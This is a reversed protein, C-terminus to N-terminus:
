LWIKKQRRKKDEKIVGISGAVPLCAHLQGRDGLQRRV